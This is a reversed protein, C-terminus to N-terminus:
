DDLWLMLRIITGFFCEDPRKYYVKNINHYDKLYFVDAEEIRTYQYDGFCDAEYRFNTAFSMYLNEIDKGEVNLVEGEWFLVHNEWGSNAWTNDPEDHYPTISVWGNYKNLIWEQAEQITATDKDYGREKMMEVVFSPVPQFSIKM